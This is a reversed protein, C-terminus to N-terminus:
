NDGAPKKAEHARELVMVENILVETLQHKQGDKDEWSHSTLKGEVAIERGKKVHQEVVEAIKGWAVLNHWQTEEVREGKANYYYDNTALTFRAMKRDNGIVKIEPDKGPRGILKVSNKLSTM